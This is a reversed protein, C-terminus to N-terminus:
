IALSICGLDAGCNSTESSYTGTITLSAIHLTTNGVDTMISTLTKQQGVTVTGFNLSSPNLEVVTGVGTLSVMQPSGAANDTIVVAGTRTGGQTPTFIVNITCSALSPLSSGCTNSQSFDGTTTISTIDLTMEGYNTLTVSQPPSSSGVLQTAFTM